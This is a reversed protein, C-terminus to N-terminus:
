VVCVALIRESMNKSKLTNERKKTGNESCIINKTARIPIFFLLRRKLAKKFLHTHCHSQDEKQNCFM